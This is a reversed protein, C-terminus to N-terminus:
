SISNLLDEWINAQNPLIAHDGLRSTYGWSIGIDEFLNIGTLDTCNQLEPSISLPLIPRSVPFVSVKHPGCNLFVAAAAANKFLKFRPWCCFNESRAALSM